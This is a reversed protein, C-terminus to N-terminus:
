PRVHASLFSIVIAFPATSCAFKLVYGISRNPSDGRISTYMTGLAIGGPPIPSGPTGGIAAATAFATYMAVPPLCRSRFNGNRNLQSASDNNESAREAKASM